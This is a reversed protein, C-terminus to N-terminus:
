TIDAKIIQNYIEVTKSTIMDRDHRVLATMRARQSYQMALADDNFFSRINEALMPYEMFPYLLGCKGEELM